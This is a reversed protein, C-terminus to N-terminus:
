FSMNEELVADISEVDGGDLNVIQYMHMCRRTTNGNNIFVLPLRRLEEELWTMNPGQLQIKPMALFMERDYSM